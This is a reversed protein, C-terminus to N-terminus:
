GPLIDCIVASINDEGGALNAENILTDTLYDPSSAQLLINEIAPNRLLGWLGDSCLLIREGISINFEIVDIEMEEEGGLGKILINKHPHTYIDEPEIIGAKVLQVVASHDETLLELGEQRLIYIRSDGIHGLIGQDGVIAVVELTTGLKKSEMKQKNAYKIISKHALSFATELYKKWDVDIEKVKELKPVLYESVAEVALRSAVEGAEQGGVGDAVVLLARAGLEHDNAVWSYVNDQNLERQRGVDTKASIDYKIRVRTSMM